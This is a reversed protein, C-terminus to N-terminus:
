PQLMHHVHQKRRCHQYSHRISLKFYWWHRTCLHRTRVTEMNMLGLERFAAKGSPDTMPLDAGATAEAAIGPLQFQCSLRKGHWATQRCSLRRFHLHLPM